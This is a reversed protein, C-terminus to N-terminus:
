NHYWNFVEGITYAYISRSKNNRNTNKNKNSIYQDRVVDWYNNEKLWDIKYPLDYFANKREEWVYSKDKKCNKIYWQHWDGDEDEFEDVIAFDCSHKIAAKKKDIAKITLVSTSDEATKYGYSPAIKDLSKKLIKRIYSPEYDDVDDIWIDVDFDYGVNSKRDRTIMHRPESGVFRFHINLTGRLDRQVDQLILVVKKKEPLYEARAVYEFDHM